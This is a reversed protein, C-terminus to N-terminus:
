SPPHSCAAAKSGESGHRAGSGIWMAQNLFGYREDGTELSVYLRFSYEKAPVTRALEPDFLKELTERPGTRWGQTKAVIYAPTQDDTKLLYSTEVRTSLDSTVLQSDQGTEVSGAGWQAAWHGGKFSIWNRQGWPGNGVRVIPNLQVCLRFDLHLDPVPLESTLLTSSSPLRRNIIEEVNAMSEHVESLQWKRSSSKLPHSVPIHITKHVSWPPWDISGVWALGQQLERVASSTM